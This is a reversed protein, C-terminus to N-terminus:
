SDVSPVSQGDAREGLQARLREIEAKMEREAPSEVSGFAHVRIGDIAVQAGHHYGGGVPKTEGPTGALAKGIADITSVKVVDGGHPQISMSVSVLALSTSGLSDLLSAVARLGSALEAATEVYPHPNLLREGEGVYRLSLGAEAGAPLDLALAIAERVNTDLQERDGSYTHVGDLVPVDATWTGSPDRDVNVLYTTM